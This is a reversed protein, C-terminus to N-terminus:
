GLLAVVGNLAAGHEVVTAAGGDDFPPERGVASYLASLLELPTPSAARARTLAPGVAEAKARWTAHAASELGPSRLAKAAATLQKLAATAAPHLAPALDLARDLAAEDVGGFADPTRTRQSKADAIARALASVPAPM